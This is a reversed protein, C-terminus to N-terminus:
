LARQSILLMVPVRWCAGDTQTGFITSNVSHTWQKQNPKPHAHTFRFM